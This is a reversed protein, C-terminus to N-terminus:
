MGSRGIDSEERDIGERQRDRDPQTGPEQVTGRERETGTGIRESDNGRERNSGGNQGEGQNGRNPTNNPNNRQQDAM